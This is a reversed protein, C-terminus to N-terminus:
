PVSAGATSASAEAWRPSPPSVATVPAEPAPFDLRRSSSAPRRREPSPVTTFPLRSAGPGTAYAGCLGRV